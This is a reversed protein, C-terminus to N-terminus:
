IGEMEDTYKFIYRYMQLHAIGVQLSINYGHLLTAIRSEEMEISRGVETRGINLRRRMNYM